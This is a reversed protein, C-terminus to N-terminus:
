RPRVDVSASPTEAPATTNPQPASVPEDDNIRAFNGGGRGSKLKGRKYRHMASKVSKGAM